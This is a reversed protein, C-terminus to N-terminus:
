DFTWFTSIAFCTRLVKAMGIRMDEMVVVSNSGKRFLNKERKKVLFMFSSILVDTNLNLEYFDCCASLNQINLLFGIFM